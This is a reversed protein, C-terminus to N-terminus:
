GSGPKTEFSIWSPLTALPQALTTNESECSPCKPEKKEEEYVRFVRGCDKCEYQKGPM